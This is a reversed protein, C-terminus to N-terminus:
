WPLSTLGGGCHRWAKCTRATGACAARVEKFAATFSAKHLYNSRPGVSHILTGDVDAPPAFTAIPPPTHRRCLLHAPGGGWPALAPGGTSSHTGHMAGCWFHRAHGDCSAAQPSKPLSKPQPARVCPQQHARDGVLVYCTATPPSHGARAKVVAVASTSKWHAAGGPGGSDAPAKATASSM